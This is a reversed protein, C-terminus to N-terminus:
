ARHEKVMRGDRLTIIKGAYSANEREHTVLIITTGDKNLERLIEMIERSTATDLNGTPEDACIIVPNNVLARALAVRQQEGGSLEMPTRNFKTELGVRQLIEEARQKRQRRPVRSYSLPLTVNEVLTARPLLNFSQFAFGIKQNRIGALEADSRAGVDEGELLYKGSTPSDLCGIINMLTSKGSGSPGMIALFEGREISLSIGNLATFGEKGMPYIKTLNETEILM